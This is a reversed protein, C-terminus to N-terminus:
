DDPKLQADLQEQLKLSVARGQQATRRRTYVTATKSNESWGQQSNRAREEETSSLGLAEAQESFRENWTHRMVHSTLKVPLGPCAQRLQFFLKDISSLSLPSGDDAVFIQPVKRAAKVQHRHTNIYSWLVKMVSPSLEVERALTKTGPQHLRTDEPTDARRYVRLRPERSDLDGIQLGLLEGRRMGTALLVVVIVWNRLRVYGREWPNTPSDPHVVRLLQDQEDKSLGTRADLKARHSVKPVHARLVKLGRAADRQLNKQVAEPLDAAVYDAIFELYKAIYRIRSASTAADVPKREPPSSKGRRFGIRSIHIVNSASDAEESDDDLDDIRYQAASALRDLEPVTLFKGDRLRAVLDVQAAALERYLLAICSCAVHITNAARGQRRYGDLFLTVEHVPLGGRVQLVSLREGNRFRIRKAYYQAM